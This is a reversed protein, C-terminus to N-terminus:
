LMHSEKLTKLLKTIAEPGKKHAKMIEDLKYAVYAEESDFKELRYIEEELAVFEKKKEDVRQKLYKAQEKRDALCFEDNPSGSYYIARSNCGDSGDAMKCSYYNSYRSVIEFIKGEFCQMSNNSKKLLIMDGKRLNKLDIAKEEPM